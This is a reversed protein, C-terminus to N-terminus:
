RAALLDVLLYCPCLACTPRQAPTAGRSQSPLRKVARTEHGCKCNRPIMTESTSGRCANRMAANQVPNPYGLGQQLLPLLLLLLPLLLLLLLWLQRLLLVQQMATSGVADMDQGICGAAGCVAAAAAAATAAIAAAGVVAPTSACQARRRCQVRAGMASCRM